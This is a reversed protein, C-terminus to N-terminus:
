NFIKNEDDERAFVYPLALVFYAMYGAESRLSSNYFVIAVCLIAMILALQNLVIDGMNNKLNKGARGACIGYFGLNLLLGVFGMELYIFASSFWDYHLNQHAKFFPTNCIAFSSTDCNGLGLGFLRQPWETLFRRSIIPIATFRGLDKGTSYSKSIVLEIIRGFSINSSAGFLLPLLSSIIYILLFVGCVLLVKRWSFKTLIAALVVILVCIIFFVKIESLAAIAMMITCMVFCHMTSIKGNMFELIKKALMITLFILTSGNSGVEVGFIGGLRDGDYDFVFFQVLITAFNIWFVLDLFKFLTKIDDREFFTAFLIVAAYFRFNNRAGWLFYIISQFNFLYVVFEFLFYVVVFTVLPALKRPLTVNKRFFLIICGLVWAVDITYKLVGPLSFLQLFTPLLFPMAFIFITLAEPLTRKKIYLKQFNTM